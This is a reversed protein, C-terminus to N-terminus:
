DEFGKCVSHNEESRITIRVNLIKKCCCDGISMTCGFIRTRPRDRRFLLVRLCGVVAPKEALRDSEHSSARQTHHVSPNSPGYSSQESRTSYTASKQNAHISRLPHFYALYSDDKHHVIIKHESKPVGLLMCSFLPCIEQAPTLSLNHNTFITPCLELARSSADANPDPLASFTSFFKFLM